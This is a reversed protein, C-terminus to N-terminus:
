ESKKRTLWTGVEQENYYVEKLCLAHAPATQGAFARDKGDLIAPVADFPIRGAAM